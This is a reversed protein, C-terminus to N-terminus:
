GIRGVFRQAVVHEGAFHSGQCFFDAGIELERPDPDIVREVARGVQLPEELLQPFACRQSGGLPM